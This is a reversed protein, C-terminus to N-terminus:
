VAEVSPLERTDHKIKIVQWMFKFRDGTPVLWLQHWTGCDHEVYLVAAFYKVFVRLEHCSGYHGFLNM